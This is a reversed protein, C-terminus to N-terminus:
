VKYVSQKTRAESIEEVLAIQKRFYESVKECNQNTQAHNALLGYASAKFYLDDSNDISRTLKDIYFSVSDRQGMGAYLKAFNLYYRPWESSDASLVFSRRFCSEAKEYQEVEMYAVSLNQTLLSQLATDSSAEALELGKHFAAFASCRFISFTEYEYLLQNIFQM